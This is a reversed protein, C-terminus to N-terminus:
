EEEESDYPIGLIDRLVNFIQRDEVDDLSLEDEGILIDTVQTIYEDKFEVGLEKCMDPLEGGVYRLMHRRNVTDFDAENIAYEGLGVERSLAFAAKFADTINGNDDYVRIMFGKLADRDGHLSAGYRDATKSPDDLLGMYPALARELTLHNAEDVMGSQPGITYGLMVEDEHPVNGFLVFSSWNKWNGAMDEAADEVTEFQRLVDLM